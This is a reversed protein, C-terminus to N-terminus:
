LGASGASFGYGRQFVFTFTTFLLYLMGYTIGIFVSFLLVIPSFLLMKTPRVIARKLMETKSLGTDLKSRLNPNGTEKRLRAAKKELLYPGYSEKMFLFCAISTVGGIITLLRFVFRWSTADVLYGGAVQAYTLV